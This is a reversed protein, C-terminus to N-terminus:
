DKRGREGPSQPFLFWYSRAPSRAPQHIVPGASCSSCQLVPAKSRSVKPSADSVCLNCPWEPDATQPAPYKSGRGARRSSFYSGRLGSLLITLALFIALSVSLVSLFTPLSASLDSTCVPAAWTKPSNATIQTHAGTLPQTGFLYSTLCFVLTTTKKPNKKRRGWWKGRGFPFHNMLMQNNLVHCHKRILICPGM